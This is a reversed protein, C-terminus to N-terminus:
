KITCYEIKARRLDFLHQWYELADVGICDPLEKKIM